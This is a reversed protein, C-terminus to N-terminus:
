FVQSEDIAIRNEKCGCFGERCCICGPQCRCCPCKFEKPSLTGNKLLAVKDEDFYCAAGQLVEKLACVQLDFDKAIEEITLGESLEAFIRYIPFRTDKIVLKGGLIEKDREAGYITPMWGDDIRQQRKQEADRLLVGVAWKLEEPTIDERFTVSGDAELECLCREGNLWIRRKAFQM